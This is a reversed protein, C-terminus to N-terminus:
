KIAFDNDYIIISHILHRNKEITKNWGSCSKIYIEATKQKNMPVHLIYIQLSEFREDNGTQYNMFNERSHM